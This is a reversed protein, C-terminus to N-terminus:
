EHFNTCNTDTFIINNRTHGTLSDISPTVSLRCLFANIRARREIKRTVASGPINGRPDLALIDTKGGCAILLSQTLIRFIASIECQCRATVITCYVDTAVITNEM